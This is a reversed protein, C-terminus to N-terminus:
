IERAEEATEDATSFDVSGIRFVAAYLVKASVSTSARSSLPLALCAPKSSFSARRIRLCFRSALAPRAAPKPGLRITALGSYAIEEEDVRQKRITTAMM